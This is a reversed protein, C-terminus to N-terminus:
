EEDFKIESYKNLEKKLEVIKNNAQSIEEYSSKVIMVGEEFLKMASNIDLESNSLKKSIEELKEINKDPNM